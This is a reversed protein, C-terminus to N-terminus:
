DRNKRKLINPSSRGLWSATELLCDLQIPHKHVVSIFL